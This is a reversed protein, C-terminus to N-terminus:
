VCAFTTFIHFLTFFLLKIFWKNAPLLYILFRWDATSDVGTFITKQGKQIVKKENDTSYMCIMSFLLSNNKLFRTKSYLNCVQKRMFFIHWFIKLSFCMRKCYSPGVRNIIKVIGYYLNHLSIPKLNRWLDCSSKQPYFQQHKVGVQIIQGHHVHMNGNVMLTMERCYFTKTKHHEPPQRGLINHKRYTDIGKM